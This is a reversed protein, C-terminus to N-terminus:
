RRPLFVSGDKGGLERLRWSLPAMAEGERQLCVQTQASQQPEQMFPQVRTGMEQGQAASGGQGGYIMGLISAHHWPAKDLSLSLSRSPVSSSDNM